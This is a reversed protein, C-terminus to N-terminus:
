RQHQHSRENQNQKDLASSLTSNYIHCCLKSTLDLIHDTSSSLPSPPLTCPLPNNISVELNAQTPDHIHTPRAKRCLCFGDGFPLDRQVQSCLDDVKGCQSRMTWAGASLSSSAEPLAELLVGDWTSLLYIREVTFDKGALSVLHQEKEYEEEQLSVASNSIGLFDYKKTWLM